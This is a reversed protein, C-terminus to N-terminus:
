RRRGQFDRNAEEYREGQENALSPTRFEFVGSAILLVLAASGVLAAVGVSKQLM